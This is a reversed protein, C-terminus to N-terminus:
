GAPAPMHCALRQVLTEPLGQRQAISAVTPAPRRDAASAREAIARDEECSDAGHDLLRRVMPANAQLIAEMMANAFHQGLSANVDVDHHLLIDVTAMDGCGVAAVIAPGYSQGTNQMLGLTELRDVTGAGGFRSDHKMADKLQTYHRPKFPPIMTTGDVAAGDNLLGDVVASQGADVATLMALQRWRKAKGPQMQALRARVQALNGDIAAVMVASIGPPTDFMGHAWMQRVTPLTQKCIPHVPSPSGPKAAIAPPPAALVPGAVALLLVAVTVHLM